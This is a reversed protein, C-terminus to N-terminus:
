RQEARWKAWRAKQAKSIARRAATSLKPRRSSKAHSVENAVATTTARRRQAAQTKVTTFQARSGARLDPFAALIAATERALEALRTQAGLRALQNIDM